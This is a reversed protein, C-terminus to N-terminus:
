DAKELENPAHKMVDGNPLEISYYAEDEAGDEKDLAVVTGVGGHSMKVKDGVKFHSEIIVECAELLEAVKAETVMSGIAAKIDEAENKKSGAALDTNKKLWALARGSSFQLMKRFKRAIEELDAGGKIESYGYEHGNIDIYLLGDRIGNDRVSLGEAIFSEFTKINKM